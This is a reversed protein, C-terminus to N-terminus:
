VAALERRRLAFRWPLNSVDVNGDTTTQLHFGQGYPRVGAFRVASFSDYADSLPLLGLRPLSVRVCARVSLLLM